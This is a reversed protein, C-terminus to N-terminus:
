LNSVWEKADLISKETVKTINLENIKVCLAEDKLRLGDVDKV